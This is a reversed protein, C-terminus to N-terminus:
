DKPSNAYLTDINRATKIDLHSVGNCFHSTLTIEVRNYVNSWEPHHDVKEAELAIATMFSFAQVFNRFVFTKTISEKEKVRLWNAKAISKLADQKETETEFIHKAYSTMKSSKHRISSSLPSVIKARYNVINHCESILYTKSTLNRHKTYLTYNRLLKLGLHQKNNFQVLILSWITNTNHSGIIPLSKQKCLQTFIKSSM